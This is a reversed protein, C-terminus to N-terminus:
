YFIPGGLSIRENPRQTNSKMSELLRAEFLVGSFSLSCLYAHGLDKSCKEVNRWMRNSNATIRSSSSASAKTNKTSVGSRVSVPGYGASASVDVGYSESITSACESATSYKATSYTGASVESRFSWCGDNIMQALACDTFIRTMKESTIDRLETDLTLDTPYMGFPVMGISGIQSVLNCAWGEGLTSNETLAANCKSPLFRLTALSCDQGDWVGKPFYAVVQPADLGDDDRLNKSNKALVSNLVCILVFFKMQKSEKIKPKFTTETKIRRNQIEFKEVSNLRQIM